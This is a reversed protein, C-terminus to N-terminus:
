FSTELLKDIRHHEKMQLNFDLYNYNSPKKTYIINKEANM